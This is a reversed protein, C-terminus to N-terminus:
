AQRWCQVTYGRRRFGEVGRYPMHAADRLLNRWAREESKASLHVLATGAPTHPVYAAPKESM